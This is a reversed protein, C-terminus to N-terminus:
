FPWNLIGIDTGKRIELTKRSVRKTQQAKYSICNARSLTEAADSSLVLCIFEQLSERASYTALSLSLQNFFYIIINRRSSSDVFRETQGLMQM